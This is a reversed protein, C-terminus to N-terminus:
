VDDNEGIPEVNCKLFSENWGKWADHMQEDFSEPMGVYHHLRFISLIYDYGIYKNAHKGCVQALPSHITCVMQQQMARLPICQLDLLTKTFNGEKTRHKCHWLMMLTRADMSPPVDRFVHTLSSEHASMQLGPVNICKKMVSAKALFEGITMQGVKAVNSTCTNHSQM